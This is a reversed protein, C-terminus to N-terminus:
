KMEEDEEAAKEAEMLRERRRNGRDQVKRVGREDDRRDLQGGGIEEEKKTNWTIERRKTSIDKRNKKPCTLGTWKM